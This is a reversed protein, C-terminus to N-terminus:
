CYINFFNSINIHENSKVNYKRRLKEIEEDKIKEDDYPNLYETGEVYFGTGRNIKVNYSEKKM